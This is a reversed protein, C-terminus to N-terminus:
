KHLWPFGRLAWVCLVIGGFSLSPALAAPTFGLGGEAVAASAFLPTVEDAAPLSSWLLRPTTPCRTSLAPPLRMHLSGRLLVLSCMHQVLSSACAEREQSRCTVCAPLGREGLMNFCWAILGYGSLALVVKRQRYWPQKAPRAGAAAKAAAAGSAAGPGAPEPAELDSPGFVIFDADENSSATSGCGQPGIRQAKQQQQQQEQLAQQQQEQLAQQQQQPPGEAAGPAPRRAAAQLSASERDGLMRASDGRFARVKGSGSNSYGPQLGAAYAGKRPLSPQLELEGGRASDAAAPPPQPAEADEAAPVQQYGAGGGFLGGGARRSPLTEPLSVITLVTAIASLM